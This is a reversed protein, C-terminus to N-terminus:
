DELSVVYPRDFWGVRRHEEGPLPRAHCDVEGLTRYCFREAYVVRTQPGSCAALGTALGLLAAIRLARSRM